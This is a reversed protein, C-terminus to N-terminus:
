EFAIKSVARPSPDSKINPSYWLGNQKFPLDSHNVDAFGGRPDYSIPKRAVSLPRYPNADRRISFLTRRVKGEFRVFSLSLRVFDEGPVAEDHHRVAQQEVGEPPNLNPVVLGM